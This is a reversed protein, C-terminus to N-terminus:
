KVEHFFSFERVMSYVVADNNTFKIKMVYVGAPLSISIMKTKGPIHPFREVSVRKGQLTFLEFNCISKEIGSMQLGVMGRMRKINVSPKIPLNKRNMDRFSAIAATGGVVLTLSGKENKLAMKNETLTEFGNEGKTFLAFDVGIDRNIIDAFISVESGKGNVDINFVAPVTQSFPYSIIGCSDSGVKGRILLSQDGFTPPLPYSITDASNSHIGCYVTGLKDEGMRATIGISFRDQKYKKFFYVTSEAARFPIPAFRLVIASDTLNYATYGSQMAKVTDCLSDIQLVSSYVLSARYTRMKRDEVWKYIAINDSKISSTRLIDSLKLNFGFPNNFDTWNRPPLVISATDRLSLTTGNGMDILQTKGSILWFLMGPTMSFKSENASSYEIWKNLSGTNSKDALWRYLRFQSADYRGGSQDFLSKLTHRIGPSDLQATTFIPIITKEPLTVPDSNYRLGRKSLNITDKNSGDSCILAARIGNIQSGAAPIACIIQGSRGKVTGSELPTKLLESGPVAYFSWDLNASNDSILLTDYLTNNGIIPLSKSRLSIVPYMTDALVILPFRLDAIRMTAQLKKSDLVSSDEPIFLGASDRYIHVQWIKCKSPISDINLAISFPLSPEPHAFRIGKSLRIFGNLLSDAPIYAIVTDQHAPIGLSYSSDKWLVITNCLAKVTDRVKAPAFISVPQRSVSSVYVSKLSQSDPGIWIGDSYAWIGIYYSTDYMLEPFTFTTDSSLKVLAVHSFPPDNYSKSCSATIGYHLGSKVAASDAHWTLEFRLLEKNFSISDIFFLNEKSRVSVSVILLILSFLVTKM